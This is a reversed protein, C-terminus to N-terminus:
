AQVAFIRSLANRVRAETYPKTLITAGEGLSGLAHGYGTTFVLPINRAKLLQAVPDIREGRLNVDLFAAMMPEGAVKLADSVAGVPGIVDIGAANLIQVLMDAVLAEDEVVLVKRRDETM